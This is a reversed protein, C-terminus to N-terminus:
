TTHDTRQWWRITGTIALIAVTPVTLYGILHPTPQDPGALGAHLAPIAYPYWGGYGLATIIQATFTAAILAAIGPLYGRGLSAALGFTITLTTTLLGTVGIRAVGYLAASTSWGPLALLAGVAVGLGTMYLCLLLGWAVAVAYKATVIAARPTPLALLDKATHDAFERGFMWVMTMGFILIGGVAIIQALLRLHGDWDPTLTALQAKDGLLGLSRARGPNVSIFMFLGGVAVGITAALLTVWPLRSRRLKLWEVALAANM